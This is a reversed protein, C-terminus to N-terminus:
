LAPLLAEADWADSLAWVIFRRSHLWEIACCTANSAAQYGETACMLTSQSCTQICVTCTSHHLAYASQVLQTVYLMLQPPASQLAAAKEIIIYKCLLIHWQSLRQPCGSSGILAFMVSVGVHTPRVCVRPCTQFPDWQSCVDCHHHVNM